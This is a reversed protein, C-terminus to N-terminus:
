CDACLKDYSKKLFQYKESWYSFLGKDSSDDSNGTKDLIESARSMESSILCRLKCLEDRTFNLTYTKM